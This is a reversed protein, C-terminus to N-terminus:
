TTKRTLVGARVLTDQLCRLIPTTTSVEVHRAGVDDCAVAVQRRLTDLSSRYAAREAAGIWGSRTEGTELDRLAVDGAISPDLEDPSLVHLAVMSLSAAALREIGRAFADPPSFDSLVIAAGCAGGLRPLVETVDDFATVGGAHAM